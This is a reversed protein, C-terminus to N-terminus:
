APQTVAAGVPRPRPAEATFAAVAGIACAVGYVTFALTYNGITDYAWGGFLPGMANTTLMIPKHPNM